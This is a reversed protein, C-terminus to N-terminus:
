EPNFNDCRMAAFGKGGALEEDIFHFFRDGDPLSGDTSGGDLQSLHDFRTAASTLLRCKEDHAKEFRLWVRRVCGAVQPGVRDHECGALAIPLCAIVLFKALRSCRTERSGRLVTKQMQM